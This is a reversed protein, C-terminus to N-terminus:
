ASRAACFHCVDIHCSAPCHLVCLRLTWSCAVVLCLNHPSTCLSAFDLLLVKSLQGMLKTVETDQDDPVPRDQANPHTSHRQAAKSDLKKLLRPLPTAQTSRPSAVLAQVVVM